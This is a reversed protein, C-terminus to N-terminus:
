LFICFYFIYFTCVQGMFEDKGIMDEDFIDIQLEEGGHMVPRDYIQKFFSYFFKGMINVYLTFSENWDPNLNAKKVTSIATRGGCSLKCYPDLFLVILLSCALSNDNKLKGSTGKLLTEATAGFIDKKPLDRGSM